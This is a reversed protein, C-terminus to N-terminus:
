RRLVMPADRGDLELEDHADDVCLECLHLVTWIRQRHMYELLSRIRVCFSRMRPLCLVTPSGILPLAFLRAIGSPCGGSWNPHHRSACLLRWPAVGVVRDM